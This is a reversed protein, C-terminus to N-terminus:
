IQKPKLGNVWNPRGSTEFQSREINAILHLISILAFEEYCWMLYLLRLRHEHKIWPKLVLLFFFPKCLPETQFLTYINANFLSTIYTICYQENEKNHTPKPIKKDIKLWKQKERPKRWGEKRKYQENSEGTSGWHTTGRIRPQKSEM